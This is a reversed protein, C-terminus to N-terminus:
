APTAFYRLRCLWSVAGRRDLRRTVRGDRTLRDLAEQLLTEPLDLIVALVVPTMGEEGASELATM